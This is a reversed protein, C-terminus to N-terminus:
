QAAQQRARTSQVTAAANAHNTTAAPGSRYRRPLSQYSHRVSRLGPSGPTASVSVAHRATCARRHHFRQAARAAGTPNDRRSLDHAQGTPQRRTGRPATARARACPRRARDPIQAAQPRARQNIIVAHYDTIPALKVTWRRGTATSAGPVAARETRRACGSRPQHTPRVIQRTVPTPTSPTRSAVRHRTHTTPTPTPSHTARWM